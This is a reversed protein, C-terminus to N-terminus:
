ALPPQLTVGFLGFPDMLGRARPRVSSPVTGTPGRSPGGSDDSDSDSDTPADPSGEHERSPASQRRRQMVASCAARVDDMVAPEGQSCLRDPRFGVLGSTHCGVLLSPTVCVSTFAFSSDLVLAREARLQERDLLHIRGDWGCTVIRGLEGGGLGAVFLRHNPLFARRMRVLGQSADLLWEDIVGFNRRGGASLLGTPTRTLDHCETATFVAQRLKFQRMDIASLNKFRGGCVASQSAADAVVSLVCGDLKCAPVTSHARTDWLKVFSDASATLVTQGGDSGTAAAWGAISTVSKGHLKASSILAGTELDREHVRGAWSTFLRQGFVACAATAGVTGIGMTAFRGPDATGRSAVGGHASPPSADTLDVTNACLYLSDPATDSPRWYKVTADSSVTAITQQAPALPMARWVVGRHRDEASTGFVVPALDSYRWRYHARWDIRAVSPTQHHFTAENLMM